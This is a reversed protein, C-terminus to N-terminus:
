KHPLLLIVYILDARTGLLPKDEPPSPPLFHPFSHSQSPFMPSKQKMPFTENKLKLCFVLIRENPSILVVTNQIIMRGKYKKLLLFLM